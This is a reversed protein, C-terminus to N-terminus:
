AELLQFDTWATYHNESSINNNNNNNNNINNINNNNNQEAIKTSINNDIIFQHADSFSSLDCWNYSQFQQNEIVNQTVESLPQTLLLNGGLTTSENYVSPQVMFPNFSDFNDNEIIGNYLYPFENMHNQLEIEPSWTLISNVQENINYMQNDGDYTIGLIAQEEPTFQNNYYYYYFEEGEFLYPEELPSESLQSNPIFSNIPNIPNQFEMNEINEINEVINQELNQELNQQEVVVVSM